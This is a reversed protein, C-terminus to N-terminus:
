IQNQNASKEAADIRIYNPNEVMLSMGGLDGELLLFNMASSFSYADEISDVIRKGNCFREGNIKKDFELVVEPNQLIKKESRYDTLVQLLKKSFEEFLDKTEKRVLRSIQSRELSYQNSRGTKEQISMYADRELKRIERIIKLYENVREFISNVRYYINALDKKLDVKSGEFFGVGFDVKNSNFLFSFEKDFFDVMIFTLFVKDKVGFLARPDKRESYGALLEAPKISGHVIKLGKKIPNNDDLANTNSDVLREHSGGKELEAQTKKNDEAQKAEAALLEEKWLHTYYGIIDQEAINLYDKFKVNKKKRDYKYYFDVLNFLRPYFKLFIYDIFGNMKRVNSFTIGSDLRRIEKEVGLAREIGAKLSAYYPQIVLIAKFMEIIVPKIEEVSHLSHKLIELRGFLEETYLQDFRYILEYYYPFVTDLLFRKKIENSIYKDQYLLSALIMRANLLTNQYDMLLSDRFGSKFQDGNLTIIGSFVCGLKASFREIWKNVPNHQRNSPDLDIYRKGATQTKEQEALALREARISDLPKLEVTKKIEESKTQRGAKNLDVVQGGAEVFKNFIQKKQSEPLGDLKLKQRIEELKDKNM